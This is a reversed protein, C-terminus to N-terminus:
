PHSYVPRRRITGRTRTPQPSMPMGVANLAVRRGFDRELWDNSLHQWAGQGFPLVFTRTPRWMVLLGSPSRSTFDTLLPTEGTEVITRIAPVWLPERIAPELPVFVGNLPESLPIFEQNAHLVAKEFAEVQEAILLYITLPIKKEVLIEEMGPAPLM